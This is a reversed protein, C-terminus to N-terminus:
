LWGHICEILIKAENVKNYAESVKHYRDTGIHTLAMIIPACKYISLFKKVDGDM